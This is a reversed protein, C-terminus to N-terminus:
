KKKEIPSTITIKVTRCFFRGEPTDNDYLLEDSGIGKIIANDIDLLKATNRARQLALNRNHEPEGTRDTYGAIEVTSGPKIRSKIRDLIIQKNAANIEAKDFDFLILSFEDIEKDSEYDSTRKVQITVQKVPIKSETSKYANDLVDVATVTYTLPSTLIHTLDKDSDLKWNVPENNQSNSEFRQIIEGNHVVEIISSKIGAEANIEPLFRISKPYISLTTDVLALPEGVNQPEFYLEVRRNEAQKDPEDIPLSPKDPLNKARITFRDAPIKWVDTLYAQIAEARSQSLNLNDKENGSGSNCGILTLTSNPSQKMRYGVINLTNYYIDLNEAEYLKEISFNSVESKTLRKYRDPLVQSSEDFFIYTLLPYTKITQFEEITISPNQIISGTSDIGVASVKAFMLPKKKIVMTDTRRTTETIEVLYEKELTDLTILPRGLVVGERQAAIREVHVTDIIEFRRFKRITEPTPPPTYRISVGATICAVSWKVDKAVNTLPYYFSIEPIIQLSSDRNLPLTYQFGINLALRLSEADPIAGSTDHRTRKRTDVGNEIFTAGEPTKIEEIQHFDGQIKFGVGLGAKASFNEFLEYSAYPEINLYSLTSELKHEFMGDTAVDKYMITTPEDKLMTGSLTSFVARLGLRLDNQLPYEAFAGLSFGLGSGSEFSPCCNPIGPLKKFDGYHWNFGLGLYAGYSMRYSSDVLKDSVNGEEQASLLTTFFLTFLFCYFFKKM